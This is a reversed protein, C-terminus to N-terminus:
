FMVGVHGTLINMSNSSFLLRLDGGVFFPAFAYRAQGGLEVFGDSGESSVCGFASSFEPPYCIEAVAWMNGAGILPRLVLNRAPEFDYGGEIVFLYGHGTATVEMVTQKNGLFYEFRGGLYLNMPLTYGLQAGFGTNMNDSGYALSGALQLKGATYAPPFAFAHAAPAPAPAPLPEPAPAAAPTPTAEFPDVFPAPTRAPAKKKAAQSAAPSLFALCLVVASAIQASPNMHNEFRLPNPKL